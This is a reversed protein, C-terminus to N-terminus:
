FDWDVNPSPLNVINDISTLLEPNARLTGVTALAEASASGIWLRSLDNVSCSVVPLTNDKGRTASSTKGLTVVYSGATTEWVCSEPLFAGIPDTLELQFTVPEGRFVMAEICRPVDLIRCQTWANASTKGDFEGGKRSRLTAFPRELFDQLQFGVPDAMRVGHVQDSLSKLVSLLETLEQTTKWASALCSYPGHESKANLWVFHTLEGQKNKFGLGFGNECWVLECGTAGVGDINCGGHVRKRERRCTHIAEADDKTLRKPARTLKPVKLKAPDITTNRQYNLNGFGLKDYYGQDFIGLFSVAAGNLASQSVAHATTRLAHGHMRAVRSTLVGAVISMPLDITQHLVHGTRTIVLVEAEGGLETVFSKTDSTFGDFVVKDTDKGEMWGVEQLIRLCSDRDQQEYPRIM